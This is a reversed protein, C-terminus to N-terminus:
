NHYSFTLFKITKKICDVKWDNVSKTLFGDGKATEIAQAIFLLQM